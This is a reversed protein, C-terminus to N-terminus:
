LAAATCSRKPVTDLPRYPNPNPNPHPHPHPNPNPNPNPDPNPNPNPNSGLRGHGDFVAYVAVDKSPHAVFYTDQNEQNLALTLTLTWTLTLILDVKAGDDLAELGSINETMKIANKVIM